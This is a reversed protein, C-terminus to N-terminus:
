PGPVVGLEFSTRSLQRRRKRFSLIADKLTALAQQHENCWTLVTIVTTLLTILAQVDADALNVKGASIKTDAFGPTDSGFRHTTGTAVFNFLGTQEVRSGAVPAAKAGGPPLTILDVRGKTIQAGIVADVATALSTWAALAATITQSPDLMAYYTGSAETGLEDVISISYRAFQTYGM